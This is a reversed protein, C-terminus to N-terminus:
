RASHEVVSVSKATAKQEPCYFTNPIIGGRFELPSPEAWDRAAGYKEDEHIPDPLLCAEPTSLTQYTRTGVADM